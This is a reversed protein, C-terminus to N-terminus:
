ERARVVWSRPMAINCRIEFQSMVSAPRSTLALSHAAVRLFQNKSCKPKQSMAFKAAHAARPASWSGRSRGEGTEAQWM